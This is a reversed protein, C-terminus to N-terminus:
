WPPFSSVADCTDSDTSATGNPLQLCILPCSAKQQECWYEPAVNSTMNRRSILFSLSFKRRTAIPITSPDISQSAALSVMWALYLVGQALM